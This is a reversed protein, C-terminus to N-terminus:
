AQSAALVANWPTRDRLMANLIVLLKRMCAVLAVKKPKGAKTLREYVDRIPPNYRIAVLTAMYLSTRVKARGGWIRRHGHRPGSDDALPAVGVLKSIQRGPVRGLEPVQALLSIATTPGIGPVSRLLDANAQWAPSQTVRTKLDTDIDELERRLFELHTEIRGRVATSATRRLRNQEAVVMEVVQRRRNVLESLARSAEDPLPRSEPRIAEAFHALIGADIRDTKALEGTAKAFDRVQRPNVVVVPLDAVALRAVLRVELGGTAELVIREPKIAALRKVLREMGKSDYAEAFVESSPRVWVDFRDGSLDIGVWTEGSM